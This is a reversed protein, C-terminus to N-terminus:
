EPKFGINNWYDDGYNFFIEEGAKINRTAEFRATKWRSSTILIANPKKSHNIYRTYNSNKDNGDILYDKCVWLLYKSSIYPEKESQADTIVVGTYYGINDGKNIPYLAFLGKGLGKISSTKIEFFTEDLKRPKKKAKKPKAMALFWNKGLLSVTSLKGTKENM